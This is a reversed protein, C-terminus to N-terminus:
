SIPKLIGSDVTAISAQNGKKLFNEKMKNGMDSAMKELRTKV